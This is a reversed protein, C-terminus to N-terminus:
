VGSARHRVGQGPRTVRRVDPVGVPAPGPDHGPARRAPPASTRRDTPARGTTPRGSASRAPRGPARGSRCTPDARRGARRRAPPCGRWGCGVGRRDRRHRARSACRRARRVRGGGGARAPPGGGRNAASVAPRHPRWSRRSAPAGPRRARRHARCRRTPRPRDCRCGRPGCRPAGPRAAHRRMRAPPREHEREGRVALAEVRRQADARRHM